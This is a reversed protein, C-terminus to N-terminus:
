FPYGIAINLVLNEHRWQSDGIKIDNWTWREGKPLWPKRLPMALDFRLIFISANMRLGLGTGVGLENFLNKFYFKSGPKDPNERLLWINGADTFWAAELIDGLKMRFETNMELT